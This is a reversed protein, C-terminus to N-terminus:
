ESWNSLALLIQDRHAVPANGDSGSDASNHAIIGIADNVSFEGQSTVLYTGLVGLLLLSAFAVKRFFEGGPALMGWVSSRQQEVIEMAVRGYFGPGPEMVREEEGPGLGRVLASIGAQADVEVRCKPCGALHERCAGSSRGALHKELEELVIKHM